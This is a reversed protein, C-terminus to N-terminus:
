KQPYLRLSEDVTDKRFPPEISEDGRDKHRPPYLYDDTM